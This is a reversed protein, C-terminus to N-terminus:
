TNEYLVSSKTCDIIKKTGQYCTICEEERGCQMGDWLITLPFLNQLKTGAREVVKVGVGLVPTLRKVLERLRAALEGRGRQTSWM